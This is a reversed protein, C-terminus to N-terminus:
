GIAATTAADLASIDVLIVLAKEDGQVKKFCKGFASSQGERAMRNLTSIPYPIRDQVKALAFFGGLAILEQLTSKSKGELDFDVGPKRWLVLVSGRKTTPTPALEAVPM